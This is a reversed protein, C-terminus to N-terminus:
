VVYVCQGMVCVNGRYAAHVCVCQGYVSVTYIYVCVYQGGCVHMYVACVNNNYLSM